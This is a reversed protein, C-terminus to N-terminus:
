VRPSAVIRWGVSSKIAYLKDSSKGGDPFLCEEVLEVLNLAIPKKSVVSCHLKGFDPFGQTQMQKRFALELIEATKGILEEDSNKLNMNAALIADAEYRFDKARVAAEIDKHIYADELSKLANAPTSLDTAMTQLSIM